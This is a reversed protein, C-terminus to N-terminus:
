ASFIKRTNIQSKEYELVQGNGRRRYDYLESFFRAIKEEGELKAAIPLLSIDELIFLGLDRLRRKRIYAGAGEHRPSEVGTHGHRKYHPSGFQVGCEV